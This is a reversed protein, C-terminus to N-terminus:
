KKEEIKEDKKEEEKAEEEPVVSEDVVPEAEVKQEVVSAVSDNDDHKISFTEPLALDKITISDGIEKLLALDVDIHPVLDGPLCEVEIFDLNKSLVGNKKEVAESEGIFNLTIPATMKKTEDVKYFDVHICQNKHNFQVDKIIAKIAQDSDINLEIMTSTGADAYIKEFEVSNLKVSRSDYGPGYVVAPIDGLGKIENIKEKDERKKAKLVISKTM